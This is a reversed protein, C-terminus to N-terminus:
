IRITREVVTRDTVQRTLVPDTGRALSFPGPPYAQKFGQVYITLEDIGTPFGGPAYIGQGMWCGATAGLYITPGIYRYILVDDLYLAFIGDVSDWVVQAVVDHWVLSDVPWNAVLEYTSGDDLDWKRLSVGFENVVITWKPHITGDTNRPHFQQINISYDTVEPVSAELLHYKQSWEPAFMYSFWYFGGGTKLAYESVFTDRVIETRHSGGVLADSANRVVKVVTDREGVPDDVCVIRATESRALTYMGSDLNAQSAIRAVNNNLAM